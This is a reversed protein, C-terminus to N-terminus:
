HLAGGVSTNTGATAFRHFQGEPGGAGSFVVEPETGSLPDASLLPERVAVGSLRGLLDTVTDVVVAVAVDIFGDFNAAVVDVEAIVVIFTGLIGTVAFGSAAVNGEVLPLALVAVGAGNAVVTGLPGAKAVRYKAVVGVGAGVIATVPNAAAEKFGVFDVAVIVVGASHGVFAVVSLTDPHVNSTITQRVTITIGQFIAVEAISCEKTIGAFQGILASYVGIGNNGTLVRFAVIGNAQGRGTVGCGAATGHDRGVVTEGTITAIGAGDTVV